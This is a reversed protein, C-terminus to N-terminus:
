FSSNEARILENRFFYYKSGGFSSEESKTDKEQKTFFFFLQSLFFHRPFFDWLWLIIVCRQPFKKRRGAEFEAASLNRWFSGSFHCNECRNGCARKEMKNETDAKSHKRKCFFFVLLWLTGGTARLLFTPNLWFVILSTQKNTLRTM